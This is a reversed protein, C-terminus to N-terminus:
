HAAKHPDGLELLLAEYIPNDRWMQQEWFEWCTVIRGGKIPPTRNHAVNEIGSPLRPV